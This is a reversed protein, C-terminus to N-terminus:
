HNGRIRTILSQDIDCEEYSYNNHEIMYDIRFALRYMKKRDRSLFCKWTELLLEQYFRKIQMTKRYKIYWDRLFSRALAIDDDSVKLIKKIPVDQEVRQLLGALGWIDSGTMEQSKHVAKSILGRLYRLHDLQNASAPVSPLAKKLAVM